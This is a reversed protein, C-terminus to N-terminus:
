YTRDYGIKNWITIHYRTSVTVEIKVIQRGEHM